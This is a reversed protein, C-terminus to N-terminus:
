VSSAWWSGAASARSTLRLGGIEARLERIGEDVRAIGADVRNALDDLLEDTWATREVVLPLETPRVSRRM